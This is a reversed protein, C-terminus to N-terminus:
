ELPPALAALLAQDQFPKNCRPYGRYPASVANADYGTTFVFRIGLAILADAIPYSAQGHLNVDLLVSDVAASNREIFVLAEDIWGIPGLVVAGADELMDSVMQAVLYDDEIILIRRGVLAGAQEM